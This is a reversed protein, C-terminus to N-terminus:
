QQADVSTNPPHSVWSREERWFIKLRRGVAADGGAGAGEANVRMTKGAKTPRAEEEEEEESEM